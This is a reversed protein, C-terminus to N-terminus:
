MTAALKERPAVPTATPREFAVFSAFPEMLLKTLPPEFTVAFPFPIPPPVGLMVIVADDFTSTVVSEVTM